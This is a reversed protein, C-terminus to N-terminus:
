MFVHGQIWVDSFLSFFMFMVLYVRLWDPFCPIEPHDAYAERLAGLRRWVMWYLLLYAALLPFGGESLCWVYSNHPPKFKGFDLKHVWRFNGLGVGLLPHEQIIVVSDKLTAERMETSKYGELKQESFPNLNLIRERSAEPLIVFFTILGLGAFALVAGSRATRSATQRKGFGGFFIFGS